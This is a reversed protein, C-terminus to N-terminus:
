KRCVTEQSAKRYERPTVSAQQKFARTFHAANLYGTQRAVQRVPLSTEALLRRAEDLRVQQVYDFVTKGTTKAFLTSFYNPSLFVKRSIEKLTLPQAYNEEIFAQAIEIMGKQNEAATLGNGHKDIHRMAGLLVENVSSRLFSCWGRTRSQTEEVTRIFCKALDPRGEIRAEDIMQSHNTGQGSTSHISIRSERPHCCFWLLNFRQRREAGGVLYPTNQPIFGLDGSEVLFRNGQLVLETQGSLGFVWKIQHSHAAYKGAAQNSRVVGPRPKAEPLCSAIPKKGGNSPVIFQSRSIREVAPVLRDMLISRLDAEMRL